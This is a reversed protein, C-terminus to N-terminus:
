KCFDWQALKHPVAAILPDLEQNAVITLRHMARSTITYLLQRDQPQFEGATANWMIVADFELGKALYAPIVM